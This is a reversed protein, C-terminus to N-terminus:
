CLTWERAAVDEDAGAPRSLREVGNAEEAVARGTAHADREGGLRPAAAGPHRQQGRVEGDFRGLADLDDRRRGGRVDLALRPVERRGGVYNHHRSCDGVVPRRRPDLPLTRLRILRPPHLELRRRVHERQEPL